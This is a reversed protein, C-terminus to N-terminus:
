PCTAFADTHQVPMAPHNAPNQYVQVAGTQTDIVTLTFEVNTTAAYFVWYKNGLEPVCANLVKVLMEINSPSIFYFLGSEPAFELPVATAPRSPGTGARWDLEVEFRGNVLCLTTSSEVCVSPTTPTVASAENSYASFGSGNEARIRFTYFTAEELGGVITSTTNAQRTAVEQFAGGPLKREIRYGTEGNSDTWTLQVQTPSLGAAQLNAPATPKNGGGGGGSVNVTGVMGFLFHPECVYDFSGASNFTRSYTNAGEPSRFSGDEAAVNHYGGELGSWVVTDGVNINVVQPNFSFGSAAVNVTAAQAAPMAPLLAFLVPLIPGFRQRM